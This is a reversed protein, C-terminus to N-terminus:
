QVAGWTPRALLESAVCWAARLAEHIRWRAHERDGVQNSIGRVIAVPVNALRCALAVGYGEMDEATVDPYQLRRQQAEDADASATCCTLLPGAAHPALAALSLQDVTPPPQDNTERWHHFGLSAASLFGSDTQVGVGHMTVRDFITASEVPMVASDYTGAIGVLLVRDPARQALLTATRAAAAVPGFGCLECRDRVGFGPQGVLHQRERDTPVLVLTSLDPM